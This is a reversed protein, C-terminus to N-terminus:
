CIRSGSADVLVCGAVAGADARASCPACRRRTSTSPISKRREAAAVGWGGRGAHHQISGSAELATVTKSDCVRGRLPRSEAGRRQWWRAPSCGRRRTWGAIISAWAGSPMRWRGSARVKVMCARRIAADLDLRRALGAAETGEDAGGQGETRPSTCSRAASGRPASWMSRTSSRRTLPFLARGRVSRCRASPSRRAPAARHMGIVMRRVGSANRTAKACRSTCRSPTGPSIASPDCSAQEVTEVATMGVSGEVKNLLEMLLARDAPDLSAPDGLLDPRREITRRVGRAAAVARDRRPARVACRTVAM